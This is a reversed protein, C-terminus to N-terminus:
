GVYFGAIAVDVCYSVKITVTQIENLQLKTALKPKWIETTWIYTYKMFSLQFLSSFLALSRALSIFYCFRCCCVDNVRVLKHVRQICIACKLFELTIICSVKEYLLCFYIYVFSICGYKCQSQLKCNQNRYCIFCWIGSEIRRKREKYASIYQKSKRKLIGIKSTANRMQFKILNIVRKVKEGWM